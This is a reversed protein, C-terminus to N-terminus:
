SPLLLLYSPVFCGTRPMHFCMGIIIHVVFVSGDSNMLRRDAEQAAQPWSTNELPLTNNNYVFATSDGTLLESKYQELDCKANVDHFTLDRFTDCPIPRLCPTLNDSSWHCHPSLYDSFSASHFFSATSGRCSVSTAFFEWDRHAWHTEHLRVNTWRFSQLRVCCTSCFLLFVFSFVAVSISVFSSFSSLSCPVHSRVRPQLKRCPHDSASHKPCYSDLCTKCMHNTRTLCTDVACLYRCLPVRPLMVMMQHRTSRSTSTGTNGASAAAAPCEAIAISDLPATVDVLAFPVALQDSIAHSSSSPGHETFVPM